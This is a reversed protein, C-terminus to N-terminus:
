ATRWTLREHAATLNAVEVGLATVRARLRRLEERVSEQVAETTVGYAKCVARVDRVMYDRVVMLRVPEMPLRGSTVRMRDVPKRPVMNVSDSPRAVMAGRSPSM